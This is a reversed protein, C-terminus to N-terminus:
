DLGWSRTHAPTDFEPIISVGNKEALSILSKIQQISYSSKKDYAGSKVLEPHNVLEM